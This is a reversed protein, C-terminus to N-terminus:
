VAPEFVNGRGLIGAPDVHSKLARFASLGAEGVMWRLHTRKLKGIGHEASVTGGLSLALRALEDYYALAAELEGPDRPLLNLHLHNDGLHGFLVSPVPAAEYADMMRDLAADPVALDTGVKRMGNAVVRENVGAPIAHRLALM